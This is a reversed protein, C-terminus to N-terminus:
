LSLWRLAGRGASRGTAFCATLLYGGTPAEWDLMEGACFVGPIKKLMLNADLEDFTIGGASSIAKELPAAVSLPIQLDKIATALKEVDSLDEKSLFEYLLGVKVGKLGVTKEIHSTLTRSGRPKSLAHLLKERSSDPALDLHLAARGTADLADRLKASAAYILSGEVGTQTVIFEGQQQFDEFALVVSKIPQGHFKQKFHNSWNVIFGCNSPRFAEVKVGAQSLWSSWAGSSGLKPWSAGGLALITADPKIKIEGHPSDFVLFDNEWGKWFHRPHFKVQNAQLRQLWARLLPSAKMEKPFVRQSTGVFTEVGLGQAWVRVDEANFDKLHKKIEDQQNGYRTIFKEYPEAHTLNLGSKGAMLFKRGFSPMSDYVDIQLDRESLVEAAMLGAPGGGIIAVTKKM